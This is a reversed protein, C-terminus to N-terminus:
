KSLWVEWYGDRYRTRLAVPYDKLLEMIQYIFYCYDVQGNRINKLVDNIYACNNKPGGNKPCTKIFMKRINFERQWKEDTISPSPKGDTNSIIKNMRLDDMTMGKYKEMEKNQESLELVDFLKKLRGTNPRETNFDEIDITEMFIPPSGKHKQNKDLLETM